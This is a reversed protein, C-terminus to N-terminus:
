RFAQQPPRFNFIGPIALGPIPGNPNPQFAGLFQKMSEDLQLRLRGEAQANDVTGTVNVGVWQTGAAFVLANVFPITPTKPRGPQSYFDLKVDGSFGIRGRGRLSIADGVLDIQNFWFAREHVKFNVLAYEFASRNGETFNLKSLANFLEIMLPLEYLAAPSIQLQGEGDMSDPLDTRGTLYLWANVNGALNPQKPIHRAAYRALSAKELQGFLQYGRGSQLDIMSNLLLTGGYAEARLQDDAPVTAPNKETFIARSGLLMEKEDMRYPGVTQTLTIGRVLLSDLRIEGQNKLHVGDWDGRATVLGSVNKLDLGAAVGCDRLRLNLDWAATPPVSGDTEGRFDLQSSEVSVRGEQSLRGMMERWSDPLAARLDDDPALDTANLDNLHVVWQQDATVQAWGRATIPAGGHEAKLSLIECHQAGGNGPDNPEFSMKLLPVKMRYPFPRPYIEADFVEVMPLRVVPKQGPQATWHINTVVNLRGSPELIKWLKQHSENLSNLLEIDMEVNRATVELDLVGPLPRGRYVGHAALEGDGHQGKLEDFAWIKTRTDYQLRGSLNQITYPFGRFRMTSRSVSANLLMEIRNNLGPARYCVLKANGTGLIGLADIVKRGPSELADRFHSDIPLETVEVDFRMEAEPGPHRVTGVVTVPREGANGTLQIDLLVNEPSCEIGDFSRQRITGSLQEIPYRFKHFTARGVQIKANLDQPVWRGDVCRTLRVDGTVRGDPQFHDFFQRGKPSLFPQLRRNVLFNEVHLNAEPSAAAGMKMSIQGSVLSDGDRAEELRFVVQSNDCFLTARVDTLVDSVSTSSLQGDRVRVMLQFEPILVDARGQVSFKLDAIGLFRPSTHLTGIVLAASKGAHAQGGAPLVRGVATDIQHLTQRVGPSAAMAVDALKQGVQLEAVRGELNWRKAALDWRGTLELVGADRLGLDGVFDYSSGSEPVAQFLGTKLLLSATPIGNGHELNVQAKVDEVRIVPLKLPQTGMPVFRYNQWNLRGGADRTILVDVRRVTVSKVVLSQREILETPDITAFVEGARLLSQNTRRDRIELGRLRLTSSGDLRVESLNLLLDPLAAHFRNQLQAQLLRDTNEWLWFGGVSALVAALLLLVLMWKFVSVLKM